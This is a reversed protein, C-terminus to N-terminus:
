AISIKRFIKNLVKHYINGFKVYCWEKLANIESSALQKLGKKLEKEFLVKDFSVKELIMKVYELVTM